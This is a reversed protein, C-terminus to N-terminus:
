SEVIQGDTIRFLDAVAITVPNNNATADFLDQGTFTGNWKSFIAVLDGEAIIQETNGILDPFANIFASINGKVSEKDISNGNTLHGVYNDALYKDIATSNRDVYLDNTFTQVLEKNDQSSDEQALVQISTTSVISGVSLIGVLIIVFPFIALRSLEKNITM